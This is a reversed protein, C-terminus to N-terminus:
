LILDPKFLHLSQCHLVISIFDAFLTQRTGPKRKVPRQLFRQGQAIRNWYYRRRNINRRTWDKSFKVQANEMVGLNVTTEPLNREVWISIQRPFLYAEMKLRNTKDFRFKGKWRRIIGRRNWQSLIFTKTLVNIFRMLWWIISIIM